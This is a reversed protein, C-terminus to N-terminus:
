KWIRYIDAIAQANVAAGSAQRVYCTVTDGVALALTASVGHLFRGAAPSWRSSSGAETFAAWRTGGRTIDLWCSSSTPDAAFAVSVWISYIGASNAPITLLTGTVTIFSPSNYTTATWSIASDTSNAISQNTARTVTAGVRTGLSTDIASGLTRIANAGNTILATDDPTTWGWNTTTAM